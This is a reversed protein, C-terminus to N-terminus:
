THSPWSPLGSVFIGDEWPAQLGPAVLWTTRGPQPVLDAPSTLLLKSLSRLDRWQAESRDPQCIHRHLSRLIKPSFGQGWAVMAMGVPAFRLPPVQPRKGTM